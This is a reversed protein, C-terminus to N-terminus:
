RSIAGGTRRDRSVAASVFASLRRDAVSQGRASFARRRSPKAMASLRQKQRGVRRAYRQRTKKGKVAKAYTVDPGCRASLGVAKRLSQRYPLSQALLEGGSNSGQGVITACREDLRSHIETL